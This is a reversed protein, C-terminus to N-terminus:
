GGSPEQAESGFAFTPRRWTEYWREPRRNATSAPAGTWSGSKQSAAL